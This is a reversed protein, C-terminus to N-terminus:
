SQAIDAERWLTSVAELQNRSTRRVQSLWMSTKYWLPSLLCFESGCAEPLESLATNNPYKSEGGFDGCHRYSCNFLDANNELYSSKKSLFLRRVRKKRLNDRHLNSVIVFIWAKLSQTNVKEPLSKVIRLWAEQFLDEAEGRNQTLYYAFCFVRDKYENYLEDFPPPATLETRHTCEGGEPVM